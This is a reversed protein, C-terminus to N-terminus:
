GRSTLRPSKRGLVMQADCQVLVDCLREYALPKLLVFDFGPLTLSDGPYMDGRIAVAFCPRTPVQIEAIAKLHYALDSVAFDALDGDIVITSCPRAMMKAIAQAGSRATTAERGDLELLDRIIQLLDLRSGVVLTSRPM